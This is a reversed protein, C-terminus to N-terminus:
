GPGGIPSKEDGDLFFGLKFLRFTALSPSDGVLNMIWRDKRQRYLRSLRGDIRLKRCLRVNKVLRSYGALEDEFERLTILAETTKKLYTRNDEYGCRMAPNDIHHIKIGSETLKKGMFVDEYGYRVFREDFRVKEFVDKRALFNSSQFDMGPASERMKASANQGSAAEYKYRLNSKMVTKPPTYLCYGGYVVEWADDTELYTALYDNKCMRMHGGDIFLLWEYSAEAALSNRIAARGRNKEFRLIRCRDTGSLVGNAKVVEADTSGDDGVIIEWVLGQIRAAQGAIQRVLGTCCDNYVPILISIEKKM